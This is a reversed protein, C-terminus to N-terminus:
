SKKTNLKWQNIAKAFREGLLPTVPSPNELVDSFPLNSPTEKLYTHRIKAAEYILGLQELSNAIGNIQLTRVTKNQLQNALKAAELSIRSARKLLVKVVLPISHELEIEAEIFNEETLEIKLKEIIERDLQNINDIRQVLLPYVAIYWILADLAPLNQIFQWQFKKHYNNWFEDALISIREIMQWPNIGRLECRTAVPKLKTQNLLSTELEKLLQGAFIDIEEAQSIFNIGESRLTTFFESVNLHEEIQFINELDYKNLIHSDLWNKESETIVISLFRRARTVATYWHYLDDVTITNRGAFPSVIVVSEFELGKAEPISFILLRQELNQRRNDDEIAAFYQRVQERINTGEGMLFVFRGNSSDETEEILRLLDEWWNQPMVLLRSRTGPEFCDQPDTTTPFYRGGGRNVWEFACPRNESRSGPASLLYAAAAAIAGTNRYNRRFDGIDQLKINFDQDLRQSLAAWTFGSYSVRQNEDGLLVVTASLRQALLLLVELQEWYLDQVEDILLFIPKGSSSIILNKTFDNLRTEARHCQTIIDQQDLETAIFNRCDNIIRFAQSNHFEVYEQNLADKGAENRYKKTGLLGMYLSYIDLGELTTIADRRKRTLVDRIKYNAQQNTLAPTKDGSLEQFLDSRKLLAIQSDSNDELRFSIQLGYELSDLSRKGFDQIELSPVVIIPYYEYIVAEAALHFAFTTKGTGASGQAKYVRLQSGYINNLIKIDTQNDSLCPSALYEGQSIFQIIQEPNELSRILSPRLSYHRNHQCYETDSDTEDLSFNELPFEEFDLESLSQLNNGRRQSLYRPLDEYRIDRRLVIRHIILANNNSNWAFVIRSDRNPKYRWTTPKVHRLCTLNRNNQVFFDRISQTKQLLQILDRLSNAFLTSDTYYDRIATESLYIKDPNPRNAQM